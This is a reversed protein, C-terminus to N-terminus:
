SNLIRKLTDYFEARTGALAIVVLNGDDDITYAIRYQIGKYRFKYAYFGNLDGKKPDGVAYPDTAIEDYIADRVIEKLNKDKTKRVFKSVRREIYIDYVM